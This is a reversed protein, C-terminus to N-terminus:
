FEGQYGESLDPAYVEGISDKNLWSRWSLSNHIRLDLLLLNCTCNHARSHDVHEVTFDAPLGTSPDLPYYSQVACLQAMVVRHVYKGKHPGSGYRAYGKANLYVGGKWRPNAPGSRGIPSNARVGGHGHSPKSSPKSM